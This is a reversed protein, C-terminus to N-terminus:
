AKRWYDYVWATEFGLKAYVSQAAANELEVQLFWEDCGAAKARRAFEGIVAGALGRKRQSAATRMGHISALPAGQEPTYISLAGSAVASGDVYAVAYQTHKGRALIEIRSAADAADFGPGLYVARWDDFPASEVRINLAGPLPRARLADLAHQVWATQVCTPQSTIYGRQALAECFEAFAPVRPLRWAAPVGALAYADEVLAIAELDPVGHALPVASKARGVTGSDFALLWALALQLTETRQAPVAYATAHEIRSVGNGMEQQEKPPVGATLAGEAAM